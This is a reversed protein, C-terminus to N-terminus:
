FWRDEYEIKATTFTGSTVVISINNSGSNLVPFDNCNLKNNANKTGNNETCNLMESDITITGVVNTLIFNNSNITIKFSGTGNVTILPQSNYTGEVVEIKSLEIPKLTVTKKAVSKIFPQAEFNIIFDRWYKFVIDFPISNAMQAEYYKGEDDSLILTGSGRLWNAVEYLNADRKLGCEISFSSAEYVDESLTLYGNRGPIAIKELREAPKTHSPLKKVVIGMDRSNINKWTFHAM